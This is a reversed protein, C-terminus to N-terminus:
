PSQVAPVYTTISVKLSRNSLTCPGGIADGRKGVDVDGGMASVYVGRQRVAPDGGAARM